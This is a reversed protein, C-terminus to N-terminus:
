DSVADATFQGKKVIDCAHLVSLQEYLEINGMDKPKRKSEESFESSVCEQKLGKILSKDRYGDQLRGVLNQLETMREEDKYIDNKHYEIFESISKFLTKRKRLM